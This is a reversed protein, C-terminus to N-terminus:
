FMSKQNQQFSNLNINSLPAALYFENFIMKYTVSEIFPTRQTLSCLVFELPNHQAVFSLSGLIVKQFERLFVAGVNWRLELISQSVMHIHQTHSFKTFSQKTTSNVFNNIPHYLLNYLHPWRHQSLTLVVYSSIYVFKFRFMHIIDAKSADDFSLM